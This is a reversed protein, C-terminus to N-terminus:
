DGVKKNGIENGAVMLAFPVIRSINHVITSEPAIYKASALVDDLHPSLDSTKVSRAESNNHFIANSVKNMVFNALYVGALIAGLSGVSSAINKATKNKIGIKDILANTAAVTAIPISINGIQMVAERRKAKRNEPNKDIIYGGALGGLCTGLGMAIIEKLLFDANKLYKVFEKPKLSHGQIKALIALSSFVGVATTGAVTLKDKTSYDSNWFAGHGFSVRSSSSKAPYNTNFSTPSIQM